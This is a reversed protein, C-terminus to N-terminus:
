VADSGVYRVRDLGAHRNAAHGSICAPDQCLTRAPHQRAACAARASRNATTRYPSGTCFDAGSENGGSGCASHKRRSSPLRDVFTGHYHWKEKGTTADVALVSAGYKRDLATRTAGYLDVSASGVPMFVTNMDPDYSIGAWVNPTSRTFDGGTPLSANPDEQGPDFHWRMKGTIVDFGRVVGGPMDVQVNDAVRGGVVITTGAVTPASTMTYYAVNAIPGMDAKLDVVGHDGFEQCMEGNDANIAVLRADITNMLVRRECGQVPVTVPTVPTSGPVTPQALPTNVDFYAMGRCREWVGGVSANFDRRWLQKGTDVDLAIVNNKPTCVFLKEGIQM